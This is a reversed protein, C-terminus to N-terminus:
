QDSDEIGASIVTSGIMMRGYGLPVGGGQRTVNEPGSFIFSQGNIDTGNGTNTNPPSALLEYVGNLALGIGVSILANGVPTAGGVSLINIVAGAAILTAGILIKVFGGSGFIAPSILIDDIDSSPLGVEKADSLSSRGVFVKFGVGYKHASRLFEKFGKFNVSLAQIAEAANKVAFNHERGFRKGLEGYLIIKRM